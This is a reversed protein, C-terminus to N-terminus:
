LEWTLSDFLLVDIIWWYWQQQWLLNDITIGFSANWCIGSSLNSFTYEMWFPAAVLMFLFANSELKLCNLLWKYIRSFQILLPWINIPHWIALLYEVLAFESHCFPVFDSEQLNIYWHKMLHSFFFDEM